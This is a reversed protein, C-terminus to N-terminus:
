TCSANDMVLVTGADQRDAKAEDASTSTAMFGEFPTMNERTVDPKESQPM